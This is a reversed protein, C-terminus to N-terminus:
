SLMLSPDTVRGSASPLPGPSPFAEQLLQSRLQVYFSSDSYLLPILQPPPLLSFPTIPLCYLTRWAKSDLFCVHTHLSHWATSCQQFIICPSPPILSSALYNSLPTTQWTFSNPCKGIAWLTGPFNFLPCSLVRRKIWGYSWNRGVKLFQQTNTLGTIDSTNKGQHTSLVFEESLHQRVWIAWQCNSLQCSKTLSTESLSSVWGSARVRGSGPRWM